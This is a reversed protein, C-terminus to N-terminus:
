FKGTGMYRYVKTTRNWQNTSLAHHNISENWYSDQIGNDHHAADVIKGDGAYLMCHTPTQLVDGVELDTIKSPKTVKKFNHAEMNKHGDNALGIRLGGKGCKTDVGAGHVYAAVVFPNCCWTKAAEAKSAGAKIKADQTNCYYCGYKHAWKTRGYHFSNDNAINIAWAVAAQRARLIRETKTGTKIQDTTYDGCIYGYGKTTSVKYWTADETKVEGKANVISWNALSTLAEYEPGPGKRVNLLSGMTKVMLTKNIAIVEFGDIVEPTDNPKSPSDVAIDDKKFDIYKASVYGSKGKYTTKYWKNSSTEYSVSSINIESGKPIRAAVRYYDGPGTRLSLPDKKTAVIGTNKLSQTKYSVKKTYSSIIYRTKNKYSVKYWTRKKKDKKTGLIEMYTNKKLSGVKKYNTGANTRVAVTKSVKCASSAAYAPVAAIM